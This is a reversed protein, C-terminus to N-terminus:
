ARRIRWIADAIRVACFGVGAVAALISWDMLNLAAYQYEPRLWPMWNAIAHALPLTGGAVLLAPRTNGSPVRTLVAASLGILALAPLLAGWIWDVVILIVALATAQVLRSDSIRSVIGVRAAALYWQVRERDSLDHAESLMAGIWERMQPPAIAILARHLLRPM